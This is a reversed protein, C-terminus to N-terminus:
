IINQKGLKVWRKCSDSISISSSNSVKKKTIINLAWVLQSPEVEIKSLILPVAHEGMNIIGQFNQDEIIAKPNSLFMTNDSWKKYLEEFKVKVFHNSSINFSHESAISKMASRLYNSDIIDSESFLLETRIVTTNNMAGLVIPVM